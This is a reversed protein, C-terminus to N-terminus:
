FVVGVSVVFTDDAFFGISEDLDNVTYRGDVSISPTLAYALGVNATSYSPFLNENDVHQYGVAGSLTLRATLPKALSSEVWISSSGVSFYDPSYALTNTSTVDGFTRSATFIAEVMDLEVPANTYLYAAVGYDVSWGLATTRYGGYLDVERDTGDGFDVNSTWAGVYFGSDSTFDVGLSYGPQHNTQSSGRTVYDSSLGVNFSVDDALAPSAVLALAAAFILTKM